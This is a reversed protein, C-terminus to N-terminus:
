ALAEQERAFAPVLLAAFTRGIAADSERYWGERHLLNATGLCRGDHVVPVNLISALGLSLILAHDPFDRVIDAANRGIYTQRRLIVQEGWETTRLPKRGGVPYATPNSSYVRQVEGRPEDVVLFTVLLHGIAQGLARDLAGYLPEPQGPLGLSAVAELLPPLPDPRSM